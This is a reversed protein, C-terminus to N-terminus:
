MITGYGVVECVGLPNAFGPFQKGTRRTEEKKEGVKEVLFHSLVKVLDAKSLQDIQRQIPTRTAELMEKGSILGVIFLIQVINM